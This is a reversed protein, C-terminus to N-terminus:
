ELPPPPAVAPVVANTKSLPAVKEPRGENRCNFEGKYVTGGFIEKATPIAALCAAESKFGPWVAPGGRVSGGAWVLMATRPGGEGAPVARCATTAKQLFGDFVERAVPVARRCDDLSEFGAWVTPGGENNGAWILMAVLIEAGM